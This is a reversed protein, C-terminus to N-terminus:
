ENQPAATADCPASFWVTYHGATETTVSLTEAFGGYLTAQSFARHAAAGDEVGRLTVDVSDRVALVHASLGPALTVDRVVTGGPLVPLPTCASGLVVNSGDEARLGLETYEPGGPTLSCGFLSCCTAIVLAHRALRHLRTRTSM